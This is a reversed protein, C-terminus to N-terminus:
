LSGNEYWTDDALLVDKSRHLFKAPLVMSYLNKFNNVIAAMHLMVLLENEM